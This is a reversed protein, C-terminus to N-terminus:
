DFCQSVETLKTDTRFLLNVTLMRTRFHRLGDRCKIIEFVAFNESLMYVWQMYFM